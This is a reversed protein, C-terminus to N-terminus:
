ETSGELTVTYNGGSSLAQLRAHLVKAREGQGLDGLVPPVSQNQGVPMSQNSGRDAAFSILGAAFVLLGIVLSRSSKM